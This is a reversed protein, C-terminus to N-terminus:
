GSHNKVRPWPSNRPTGTWSQIKPMQASHDGGDDEAERGEAALGIRDAGVFDRRAERADADIAGLKEDIGRRAQNGASAATTKTERTDVVRESM